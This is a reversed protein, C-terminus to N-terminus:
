SKGKIDDFKQKEAEFSARAKEIKKELTKRQLEKQARKARNLEDNAARASELISREEEVNAQHQLRAKLDAIEAQLSPIKYVM